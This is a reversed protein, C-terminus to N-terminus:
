NRIYNVVYEKTEKDLQKTPEDLLIIEPKSYLLKAFAVKSKQGGSLKNLSQYLMEDNINMGTIIKLLSSEASYYEWYNLKTEINEIKKFLENQLKIDETLAIKEYTKILEKNLEDIPRAKILYDFVSIEMNPIEDSIVQPLLLVRSGNKLIIKGHDPELKKMILKFLTSKGAGNVGVIGIHENENITLNVNEFLKEQGFSMTLDKLQM